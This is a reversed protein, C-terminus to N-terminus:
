IKNVGRSVHKVGLYVHKVGQCVHKVGLCVHTACRSNFVWFMLCLFLVSVVCCYFWIEVGCVCGISMLLVIVCLVDDGGVCVCVCM